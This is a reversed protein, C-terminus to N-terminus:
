RRRQPLSCGFVICKEEVRVRSCAGHVLMGPSMQLRSYQYPIHRHHLDQMKKFICLLYATVYQLDRLEIDVEGCGRSLRRRHEFTEGINFRVRTLLDGYGNRERPM